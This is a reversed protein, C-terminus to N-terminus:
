AGAKGTEFAPKVVNWLGRAGPPGAAGNRREATLAKLTLPGPSSGAAGEGQAQFFGSLEMKSICAGEPSRHIRTCCRSPEWFSTGQGSNGPQSSASGVAMPEGLGTKPAISTALITGARATRRDMPKLSRTPVSLSTRPPREKSTQVERGTCGLANLANKLLNGMAQEFPQQHGMFAFDRHVVVQVCLREAETSYPFGALAKRVMAGAEVPSPPEDLGMWQANNVLTNIQWNMQSVVRQLRSLMRTLLGDSTGHERGNGLAADTLLAIAAMRTRLEHALIRVSSMAQLTQAQRVSSMGMGVWCASGWSFATVVAHTKALDAHIGTGAPSLVHFLCWTLLGASALGLTAVRCETLRAM